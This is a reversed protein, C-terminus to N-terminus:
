QWSYVYGGRWGDGDDCGDDAGALSASTTARVFMSAESIALVARVVVHMYLVLACGCVCVLVGRM